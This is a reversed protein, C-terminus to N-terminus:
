QTSGGFHGKIAPGISELPLVQHALGARVVSGPM